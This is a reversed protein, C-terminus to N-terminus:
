LAEEVLRREDFSALSEIGVGHALAQLDRLRAGVDAEHHADSATTFSVGEDVLRELLARAPYQEEIPKRWGASSLEVALDSAVVSAVLRDWFPAPDSPVRGTVKILDLHALVDCTKTAALEDLASCYADWWTEVSGHEWHAMQLADDVHDFRWADVWHVSGLVVDFPYDALLGEVLGMQDPYYDLEIGLKVPLGQRKAEQVLEVYGDLDAHAHHEVYSAMSAAMEASSGSREWFPGLADVARRFRFLHETIAIEHAGEAMAQKCYRAVQELELPTESTDHSWLHLHYDLVSSESSKIRPCRSM